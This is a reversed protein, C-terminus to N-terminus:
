RHRLERLVTVFLVASGAAFFLMLLFEVDDGM